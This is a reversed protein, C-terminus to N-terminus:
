TEQKELIGNLYIDFFKDAFEKLDYQKMIEPQYQFVEKIAHRVSFTYHILVDSDIDMRIIGDVKALRMLERFLPLRRTMVWDNYLTVLDPYSQNLEKLFDSKFLEDYAKLDFVQLFAEQTLKTEKAERVTKEIRQLSINFVREVVHKVIDKKDTFHKYFTTKSANAERVIEDVTLNHIGKEILLHEATELLEERKPSKRRVTQKTM